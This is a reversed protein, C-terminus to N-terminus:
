ATGGPTTASMRVQERVQRRANEAAVLLHDNDAQQREILAVACAHHAPSRWCHFFHTLPEGAPTPESV